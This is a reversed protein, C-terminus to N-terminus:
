SRNVHDETFTVEFGADNGWDWKDDVLVTHDHYYKNPDESGYGIAGAYGGLKHSENGHHIVDQKSLADELNDGQITTNDLSCNRIGVFPIYYYHSCDVKYCTSVYENTTFFQNDMTPKIYAKRM